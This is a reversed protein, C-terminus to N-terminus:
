KPCLGGTPGVGLQWISGRIQLGPNRGLVLPLRWEEGQLLSLIQRTAASSHSAGKCGSCFDKGCSPLLSGDRNGQNIKRSKEQTCYSIPHPTAGAVQLCLANIGGEEMWLDSTHQVNSLRLKTARKAYTSFAFGAGLAQEHCEKPQPPHLAAVRTDKGATM